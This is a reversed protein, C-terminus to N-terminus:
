KKFRLLLKMPIWGTFTKFLDFIETIRKPSVTDKLQKQTDGINNENLIINSTNNENSRRKVALPLDDNRNDPLLIDWQIINSFTGNKKRLNTKQLYGKELLEKRKKREMYKLAFEPDTLGKMISTRAKLFPKNRLANILLRALVLSFVPKGLRVM